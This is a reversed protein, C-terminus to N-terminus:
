GRGPWTQVVVIMGVGVGVVAGAGSGSMQQGDIIYWRACHSGCSHGGLAVRGQPPCDGRGGAVRVRGWGGGDGRGGARWARRGRGGGERGHGREIGGLLLHRVALQDVRVAVRELDWIVGDLFEAVGYGLVAELTITDLAHAIDEAVHGAEGGCEVEEVVKYRWLVNGRVREAEREPAQVGGHLAEEGGAEPNQGVLAAVLGERGGLQVVVDDAPDQVRGQEHGVERPLHGVALVVLGGAVELAVHDKHGAGALLLGGAEALHDVLQGLQGLLGGDVGQQHEDALLEDAPGVVEHGVDGAVVVVLALALAAALALVVAVAAAHVVEVGTGRQVLVFVGVEDNKAVDTDAQSSDGQVEEDLLEAEGVHEHPVEDRVEPNVVPKTLTRAEAARKKQAEAGLRRRPTRGTQENTPSDTALM